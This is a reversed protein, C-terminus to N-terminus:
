GMRTIPRCQLLYLQGRAFACEVDVPFGMAAECELTLRAVREIEDRTMAQTMQLLRPVPVERTGDPAPVTMVTKRAVQVEALAINTKSVIYTDPTVMGGVVSEGLGFNANIVIEDRNGTVPNASFAVAATDAQVLHQVLVAVGAGGDLRRSQRYARVRENEASELCRAVADCVGDAGTINLYTDFQGAFSSTTGDEDTASSRVAVPPDATGTRRALEGYAAAILPQLNNQEIGSVMGTAVATLCFGTPVPHRVALRSLNAAKGGTRSVDCAAADDLWLIDVPPLATM